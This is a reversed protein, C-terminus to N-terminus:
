NTYSLGTVGRSKVLCHEPLQCKQLGAGVHVQHVPQGPDLPHYLPDHGLVVVQLYTQRFSLVTLVSTGIHVESLITQPLM